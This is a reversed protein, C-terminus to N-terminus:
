FPTVDTFSSFPINPEITISQSEKRESGLIRNLTDQMQEDANKFKGNQNTKFNTNLNEVWVAQFGSWSKEVCIKIAETPHLKSIKIQNLIGNFATESNVSKKKKRIELFELILNEPINLSILNKKFDFKPAEGEGKEKGQVQGKEKGQVEVQVRPPLQGGDTPPVTPPLNLKIGVKDEYGKVQSDISNTQSIYAFKSMGKLDTPKVGLFQRDLLAGIFAVRDKDNELENYVDYYSRFFNFGKRKTLKM